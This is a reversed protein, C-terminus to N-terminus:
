SVTPSNGSNKLEAEEISFALSNSIDSVQQFVSPDASPMTLFLLKKKNELTVEWAVPQGDPGHEGVGRFEEVVFDYTDDLAKAARKKEDRIDKVKERIATKVANTLPRIKVGVQAGWINLDFWQGSRLAEEYGTNKVILM